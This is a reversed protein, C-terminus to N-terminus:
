STKKRKILDLIENIIEEDRENILASELKNIIIEDDVDEIQGLYDVASMRVASDIHSLFLFINSLMSRDGLCFLGYNMRLRAHDSVECEAKKRLGNISSHAGLKGLSAGAYGRVDSNSDSLACILHEVVGSNGIATFGLCQAAYIRVMEEADKLGKIGAEVVDNGEFNILSCFSYYRIKMNSSQTCKLLMKKANNYYSFYALSDIVALKIDLLEVNYLKVLKDLNMKTVHDSMHDIDNCIDDIFKYVMEESKVDAEEENFPQDNIWQEYHVIEHAFVQLYSYIEMGEECDFDINQFDGTAIKIYPEENKDDPAFFLGVVKEGKKNIIFEEKYLYAVVRIPFSRKKRLWVAFLQLPVKFQDQVGYSRTYLGIRRYQM